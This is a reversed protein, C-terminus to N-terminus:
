DAIAEVSLNHTISHAVLEIMENLLSRNGEGRPSSRLRELETLLELLEGKGFTVDDYYDCMRALLPFEEAPLEWLLALHADRQIGVRM